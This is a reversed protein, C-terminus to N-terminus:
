VRRKMKLLGMWIRQCHGLRWFKVPHNIAITTDKCIHLRKPLWHIYMNQDALLLIWVHLKKNQVEPYRMWWTPDEEDLDLLRINQEWQEPEDVQKHFCLVKFITSISRIYKTKIGGRDWSNPTATVFVSVYVIVEVEKQALTWGGLTWGRLSLYGIAMAVLECFMSTATQDLWRLAARVRLTAPLILYRSQSSRTRHTTSPCRSM